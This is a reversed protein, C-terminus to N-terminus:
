GSEVASRALASGTHRGGPAATAFARRGLDLALRLAQEREDLAVGALAHLVDRAADTRRGLLERQRDLLQQALALHLRFALLAGGAVERRVAGRAALAPAPALLASTPM